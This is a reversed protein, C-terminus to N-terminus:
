ASLEEDIYGHFHGCHTCIRYPPVAVVETVRTVGNVFETVRQVAAPVLETASHRMCNPCHKIM